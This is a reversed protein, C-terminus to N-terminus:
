DGRNNSFGTWKQKCGYNEKGKPIRAISACVVVLNCSFATGYKGTFLVGYQEKHFEMYSLKRTNVLEMM